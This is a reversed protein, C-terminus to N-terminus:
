KFTVVVKASKIEGFYLQHEELVRQKKAFGEMKKQISTEITIGEPTAKKLLGQFHEGNHTFIEIQRGANKLYQEVVRFPETLGPSSVQLEFDERERDLKKELDRSIEVCQDITIGEYSDVTVKIINSASVQLDVLFMKEGLQEKVMELLELKNVM